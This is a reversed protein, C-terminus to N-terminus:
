LLGTQRIFLELSKIALQATPDNTSLTFRIARRKRTFRWTYPKSADLSEPAQGDVPESSSAGATVWKFAGWVVRGWVAASKPAVDSAISLRMTAGLPESSMQYRARLRTVTNAVDNGTLYSRTTLSWEPVSGDADTETNESQHFYSLNLIRNGGGYTGGLLQPERSTSASVRTTFAGITAGYGSLRTWPAGGSKIPMDLRCVLTDVVRGGGIIPLIYHSRFVTATGPTYGARVYEQYLDVIPQSLQTFSSIQESTVGRKVLWVADAGPVVLSDEWAAIGDAGWLVLSGAYHDLRHQVNGNADTLNLAMGSVVWIGNTTFVVLSDRAGALCLIEVGGPLEHYDTEEFTEPKNVVSFNIRTGGAAILRNAVIAYYPTVKAATGGSTGDWTKGGPLYLVGKFAVPQGPKAAESGTVSALKGSELLRGYGASNGFITEQGSALWGDWLKTIPAGAAEVSRYSSGGREFVGGLRDLLCNQGDYFANAPMAEPSGSRYMGASFDAQEITREPTVTAVAM